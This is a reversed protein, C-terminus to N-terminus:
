DLYWLAAGTEVAARALVIAAALQEGEFSQFSARALETIRWITAGRYHHRQCSFNTLHLIKFPLKTRSIAIPDIQRPLSRELIRIRAQVEQIMEDLTAHDDTKDTAPDSHDM